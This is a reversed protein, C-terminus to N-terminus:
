KKPSTEIQTQHFSEEQPDQTNLNDLELTLNHSNLIIQKTNIPKSYYSAQSHITYQPYRISDPLTQNYTEATQLQQTFKNDKEIYFLIGYLEYASPRQKPDANWCRKILDELLQPIKIQFQPRSGTCIRAGLAPDHAYEHFPPLGTIIEYMIMGFSYIDSAQTYPQGQLVEPAVYPLVGFVQGDDAKDIPKSLGLDTIYSCGVNNLINGPHLDRHILGRRHITDLGMSITILKGCKDEWSLKRVQEKLYDRLNGEEKYDMVMIYNRTEPDQSIGYCSAIYFSDDVLKTNAIEQLFDSTINQSNTLIKLIVEESREEEESSEECSETDSNGKKNWWAKYIKSFGGEALYEIDTFQEYPIWQLKNDENSTLWLLKLNIPNIPLVLNTLLNNCCNIQELQSCNSGNFSTLENRSCDVVRLNVFDCLDLDGELNQESINLTTIESRIKGYNDDQWEEDNFRWRRDDKKRRCVDNKPYNKDLWEQANVM